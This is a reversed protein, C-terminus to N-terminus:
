RCSVAATGTSGGSANTLVVGCNINNSCVCQTMLSGSPNGTANNISVAKANCECKGLAYPLGINQPPPPPPPQLITASSTLTVLSGVVIGFIFLAVAGIRNTSM